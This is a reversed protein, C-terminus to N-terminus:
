CDKMKNRNHISYLSIQRGNLGADIERAQEAEEITTYQGIFLKYKHSHKPLDYLLQYPHKRGRLRHVFANIYAVVKLTLPIDMIM